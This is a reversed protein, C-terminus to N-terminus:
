RCSALLHTDLLFIQNCPSIKRHMAGNQLMAQGVALVGGVRRADRGGREAAAVELGEAEVREAVRPVDAGGSSPAPELVHVRGDPCLLGILLVLFPM